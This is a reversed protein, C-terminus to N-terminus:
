SSTGSLVRFHLVNPSGQIFAFAHDLSSAEDSSCFCRGLLPQSSNSDALLGRHGQSPFSSEHHLVDCCVICSEIRTSQPAPLSVFALEEDSHDCRPLSDWFVFICIHSHIRNTTISLLCFWGVTGMTVIIQTVVERVETAICVTLLALRCSHTM